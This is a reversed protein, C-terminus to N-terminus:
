RGCRHAGEGKSPSSPHQRSAHDSVKAPNLWKSVTMNIDTRLPACRKHSEDLEHVTTAVGRMPESLLKFEGVTGALDLPPCLISALRSQGRIGYEGRGLGQDGERSHYLRAEPHGAAFKSSLGSTPPVSATGDTRDPRAFAAGMPGNDVPNASVVWLKAPWDSINSPFPGLAAPHIQQLRRPSITLCSSQLQM